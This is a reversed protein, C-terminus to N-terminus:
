DEELAPMSSLRLTKQKEEKTKPANIASLVNEFYEIDCGAIDFFDSENLFMRGKVADITKNTHAMCQILSTKVNNLTDMIQKEKDLDIKGYEQEMKRLKDDFHKMPTNLLIKNM